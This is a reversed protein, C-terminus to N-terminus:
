SSKPKIFLNGTRGGHHGALTTQAGMYEANGM